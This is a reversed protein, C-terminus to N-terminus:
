EETSVKFAAVAANAEAGDGDDVDGKAAGPTLHDRLKLIDAQATAIRQVRAVHDIDKGSRFKHLERAGFYFSVIAGMLWWLEDPVADLGVMRTTFGIPDVMAYAFLGVTGFALVPRPLRNLGNVFRNFWGGNDGAFEAAFQRQVVGEHQHNRMDAAEANPKFVGGVQQVARGVHNVGGGFLWQMLGM